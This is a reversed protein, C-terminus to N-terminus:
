RAFDAHKYLEKAPLSVNNLKFFESFRREVVWQLGNQTRLEIVFATFKNRKKVEDEFKTICSQITVSVITSLTEM